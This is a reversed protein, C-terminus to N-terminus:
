PAEAASGSDRPSPNKASQYPTSPKKSRTNITRESKNTTCEPALSTNKKPLSEIRESTSAEINTRYNSRGTRDRIAISHIRINRWTPDPPDDRNDSSTRIRHVRIPKNRPDEVTSSAPKVLLVIAVLPEIRRRVLWLLYILKAENRRVAIIYNSIRRSNCECNKTNELTKTPDRNIYITSKAVSPNAAEWRRRSKPLVPRDEPSESVLSIRNRINRPTASKRSPVM